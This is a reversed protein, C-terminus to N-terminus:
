NIEYDISKILNVDFDVSTTTQLTQHPEIINGFYITINHKKGNEMVVNLKYWKINKTENSKNTLTSTITYINGNEKVDTNRFELNNYVYKDYLGYVIKEKKAGCGTLLIILVLACLIKKM